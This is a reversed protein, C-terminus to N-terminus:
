EYKMQNKRVYNALGEGMKDYDQPASMEGSYKLGCVPNPQGEKHEFHESPMEAGGMKKHGMGHKPM